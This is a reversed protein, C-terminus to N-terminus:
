LVGLRRLAALLQVALLEAGRALEAEADVVAPDRGEVEGVVLAVVDEDRKALRTLVRDLTPPDNVPAVNVTFTRTFTDVVGSDTGGDDKVTVTITTTM